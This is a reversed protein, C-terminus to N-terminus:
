CVRPHYGAPPLWWCALKVTLCNWWIDSNSLNHIEIFLYFFLIFLFFCDARLANGPSRRSVSFTLFAGSGEFIYGESKVSCSLLHRHLVDIPTNM